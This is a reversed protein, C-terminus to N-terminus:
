RLAIGPHLSRFFFFSFFISFILMMGVNFLLASKNDLSLNSKQPGFVHPNVARYPMYMSM